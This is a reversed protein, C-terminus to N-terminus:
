REVTRNLWTRPVIPRMCTTGGLKHQLSAWNEIRGRRKGEKRKKGFGWAARTWRSLHPPGSAKWNARRTRPQSVISERASVTPSSKRKQLEARTNRRSALVLMPRSTQRVTSSSRTM